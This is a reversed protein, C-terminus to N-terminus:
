WKIKTELLDVMRVILKAWMTERLIPRTSRRRVRIHAAKLARKHAASRKMEAISHQQVFTHAKKKKRIVFPRKRHLDEAQWNFEEDAMQKPFEALKKLMQGLKDDVGSDEVRVNFV